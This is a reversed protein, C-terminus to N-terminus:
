ILRRKMKWALGKGNNFKSSQRKTPEIGVADCLNKFESSELVGLNSAARKSNNPDLDPGTVRIWSTSHKRLM